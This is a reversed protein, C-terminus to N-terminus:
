YSFQWILKLNGETKFLLEFREKDDMRFYFSLKVVSQTCNDERVVIGLMKQQSNTSLRALSYLCQHKFGRASESVTATNNHIHSM